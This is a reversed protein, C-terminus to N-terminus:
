KDFEAKNQQYHHLNETQNLIQRKVENIGSLKHLDNFDTPKHNQSIHNFNPLVVKAGYKEAAALAKEKGINHEKHIDNDAAIIFEKNPHATKLNKLVHEINGADFCVAVPKNTALHISAATAFGEALYIEREKAINNKTILFFNGQKEGGKLFKKSGDQNIYQLTHTKNNIDNLPIVIQNDKTFKIGKIDKAFTIGKNILYKNLIANKRNEELYAHFYTTAKRAIEEREKQKQQEIQKKDELAKQEKEKLEAKSVVKFQTKEDIKINGIGWKLIEGTKFSKVYGAKGYWCIENEKKIGFRIKVGISSFAQNIALDIDKLEINTQDKITSIFNEKIQNESFEPILKTKPQRKQKNNKNVSKEVSKSKEKNNILEIVNLKEGTTKELQKIIKEKDDLILIANHRARSIEVYFSKQTTLNPRYSELVALVNDITKGQARHTTYGYGYDIHKLIPDSKSVEIEQNDIKLMISGTKFSQIEALQSNTINKNSFGRTFNIKEGIAFEKIETKYVEVSGQKTATKAPNWVVQKKNQEDILYVNGRKIDKALIQYYRDKIIGNTKYSKNFKVFNGQQYSNINKKQEEELSSNILIIINESIQGLQNQEKLNARINQNILQRTENSPSLILTNDREEKTLSTYQHATTKAIEKILQSTKKLSGIETVARKDDPQVEIINDINAFAKTIYGQNLNEADSAKITNYVATRLKPTKQRIIEDMTTKVLGNKQMQYFPNGAEVANEQKTDGLLVVKFELEKAIILLDKMQRSSVLSSEDVVVTKDKFDQQMTKRGELTGRGEAVGNYKGLFWQLTKSEIGVNKMEKVATGTPALGFITKEKTKLLEQTTKLMHTKGTGAFGQIAIIRQQSTLILKCAKQQGKRLHSFNELDNFSKAETESYIPTIHNKSDLSAKVFEIIKLETELAEKTALHQKLGIKDCSLLLGKDQLKSIESSINQLTTRGLGDKLARDILQKKTFVANRESLTNTAGQVADKAFNVPKTPPNSKFQLLPSLKEEIIDALNDKLTQKLGKNIKQNFFKEFDSNKELDQLKTKVDLKELEKKLTEQWEDKLLHNAVNIKDERTLLAAIEKARASDFGLESIKQTIQKRRSSFSDIVSKPFGKIEFFGQENDVVEIVYGAKQLEFALNSRYILGLHKYDDFINDFFVTRYNGDQRKTLNFALCHTHLQPDLERSTNHIYSAFLLNKTLQKDIQGNIKARTYSYNEEIHSLTQKVALNHIDRIKDIGFVESLISVSKPASFTLDRGSDHIIEGKDNLRGRMKTGNPLIGSTLNDVIEGNVEEKLNFDQALNGHWFSFVRNYNDNTTSLEQNTANDLSNQSYYDDASYYSHVSKGGSHVKSVSLM